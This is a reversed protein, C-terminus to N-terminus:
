IASHTLLILRPCTCQEQKLAWMVKSLAEWPSFPPSCLILQTCSFLVSGMLPVVTVEKMSLPCVRNPALDNGREMQLDDDGSMAEADRGGEDEDQGGQSLAQLM